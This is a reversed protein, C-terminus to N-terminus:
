GQLYDANWVYALWLDISCQEKKVFSSISLVLIYLAQRGRHAVQAKNIVTGSDEFSSETKTGSNFCCTILM